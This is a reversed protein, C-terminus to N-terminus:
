DGIDGTAPPRTPTPNRTPGSTPSPRAPTISGSCSPTVQRDPARRGRGRGAVVRLVDRGDARERVALRGMRGRRARGQAGGRERSGRLTPRGPASPGRDGDAPRRRRRNRLAAVFMAVRGLNFVVDALPVRDALSTRSQDTSTTTADPIWVVVAPDFALPVRTVTHDAVVVIGGHLSAAANDAHGELAAAVSMIEAACTTTTSHRRVSGSCSRQQPGAWM